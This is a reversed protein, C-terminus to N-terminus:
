DNFSQLQKFYYMLPMEVAKTLRRVRQVLVDRAIDLPKKGCFLIWNGRYVDCVYVEAFVSKIQQMLSSGVEPLQHYNIVLWGQDDLMNHANEIFLLQEQTESMGRAEYLDSMILGTSGARSQELYMLADGCTVKMNSAEPLNFWEYAVDIVSQRLEVFQLQAQPLFHHLCHALGGGGLGLVTISRAEVFVLGLLMIQTYEHCLHYPRSMLVSSQELSSGFHLVRRDGQQFVIIQGLEDQTRYLERGKVIVADDPNHRQSSKM